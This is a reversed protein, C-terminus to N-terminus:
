VSHRKVARETEKMYIYERGQLQRKRNRKVKMKGEPAWTLAVASNSARSCIWDM